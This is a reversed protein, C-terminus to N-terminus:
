TVSFSSSTVQTNYYYCMWLMTSNLRSKMQRTMTIAYASIITTHQNDSLPLKLTTILDIGKPFGSLKGVLGTRSRIGADGRADVGFSHTALM